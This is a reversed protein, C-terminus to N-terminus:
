APISRLAAYCAEILPRRVVRGLSEPSRLICPPIRHLPNAPEIFQRNRIHWLHAPLIGAQAFHHPLQRGLPDLNGIAKGDRRLGIAGEQLVVFQLIFDAIDQAIEIDVIDIIQELAGGVNAAQDERTFEGVIHATFNEGAIM